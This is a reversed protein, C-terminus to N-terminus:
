YKTTGGKAALLAQIRRPMSDICSTIKSKIAPNHNWINILAETLANKTTPAVKSIEIKMFEWINEIPNMDPSNGPWDLVEVNNDQLFKGIVKAKHCPAGDHMFIPNEGSDFWENLQPLLRQQLVGKYQEARMTGEVIYLRGPGKSNIVSWVMISPPHKVTPVICDPHFKEGPRRRVFKSKEAMVQFISEDSFCVQSVSILKYYFM